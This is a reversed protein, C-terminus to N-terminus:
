VKIRELDLGLDGHIDVLEIEQQEQLASKKQIKKQQHHHKVIIHLNKSNRMM